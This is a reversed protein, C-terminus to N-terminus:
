NMLFINVFEIVLGALFGYSYCFFKDSNDFKEYQEFKGIIFILKLYEFLRKFRLLGNKRFIMLILGIIGSCIVSYLMVYVGHRLGLIMGAACMAKIDGAGIMRVAFLPLLILPIAAAIFSHLLIHVNMQLINIVVGICLFSLVLKNKIKREQTDSIIAMVFFIGCILFRIYEIM